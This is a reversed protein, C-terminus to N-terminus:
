KTQLKIVSFSYPPLTLILKKNIASINVTVPEVNLPSAISNVACPERSALTTITGTYRKSKWEPFSIDKTKTEGSANVIKIIM